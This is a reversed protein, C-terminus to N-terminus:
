LSHSLSFYFKRDSTLDRPVHGFADTLLSTVKLYVAKQDLERVNKAAPRSAANSNHVIPPLVSIAPLPPSTKHSGTSEKEPIPTSQLFAFDSSSLPLDMQSSPGLILDAYDPNDRLDDEITRQDHQDQLDTFEM